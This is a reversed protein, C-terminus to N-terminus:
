GGRRDRKGKARGEEKAEVGGSLRDYAKMAEKAEDPTCGTENVFQQFTDRTHQRLLMDIEWANATPYFREVLERAKNSTAKRSPMGLWEHRQRTGLGCSAALRFLLEPHPGMMDLAGINVRENVLWITAEGAPGDQVASAWRLFVPAAFGKRAEEPQRGLWGGDRTDMARLAEFIDLKYEAV